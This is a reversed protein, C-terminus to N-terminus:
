KRRVGPGSTLFMRRSRMATSSALAYTNPVPKAVPIGLLTVAKRLLSGVSGTGSRWNMIRAADISVPGYRGGNWCGNASEKPHRGISSRVRLRPDIERAEAFGFTAGRIWCFKKVSSFSMGVNRAPM